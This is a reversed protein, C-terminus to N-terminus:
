SDQAGVTAYPNTGRPLGQNAVYPNDRSIAVRGSAIAAKAASPDSAYLEQWAQRTLVEVQAGGAGGDGSRSGGGSMAALQETEVGADSAASEAEVPASSTSEVAPLGQDEAFKAVAEVTLEGEPNVAAYLDGHKPNYGAARFAERADRIRLQSTLDSVSAQLTAKDKSLREITERMQPINQEESM